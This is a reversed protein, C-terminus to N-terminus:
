RCRHSLLRQRTENGLALDVITFAMSLAGDFVAKDASPSAAAKTFEPQHNVAPLSDINLLPHITPLELSINAMDTSARMAPPYTPFIRGISTANASYLKAIEEDTNFESYAPSPFHIDLTSGTAIAGAEFCNLVKPELQELSKLTDSRLIYAAATNAPIVNPADGGQTIIGHVMDYPRLQQRMLGISVQAVTMADLANIGLYPYGAAHAEKGTYTIQMHRAAVAPMRDGEEPAPHVMMAANLGTFSGEELMLIKGGGGEEAPTGLVKLTIGLEEVFNVLGASALYAAAAIVNHGCAHGVEPLADYEACIGIGLEGTGKVAVFATELNAVNREVEFGVTDLAAALWSSAKHEEFGLEPHSHIDRSLEIASDYFYLIRERIRDKLQTGETM